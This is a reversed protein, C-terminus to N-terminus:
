GHAQRRRRLGPRYRTFLRYARELLPRLGPLHRIPWVLRHWGPLAAWLCLHADLGRLLRGDGDRVHLLTLAAALDFSEGALVDEAGALDRWCVPQRTALRRYGAVERSCVPCYGDFYVTIPATAPM